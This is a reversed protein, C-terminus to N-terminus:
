GLHTGSRSVMIVLHVAGRLSEFMDDYQQIRDPDLLVEPSMALATPFKGQEEVTDEPRSDVLYFKLADCPRNGREGRNSEKSWCVIPLVETPAVSLTVYSEVGETEVADDKKGSTFAKTFKKRQNTLGTNMSSLLNKTNKAVPLPKMLPHFGTGYKRKLKTDLEGLKGEYKEMIKTINQEKEPCHKRYFSSLRLENAVRRAEDSRREREAEMAAKHAQAEAELKAQLKEEAIRHREQLAVTVARDECRRLKSVVSRPTSEWLARARNCWEQVWDTAESSTTEDESEIAFGELTTGEKFDMIRELEKKLEDGTALLLTDSNKELVSLALFFRLSNNSSTLILDWLSMLWMPNMNTGRSEGALHSILWSQPIVGQKELNRGKSTASDEAESNEGLRKPWQWGPAYRDLHFVLLPLHYSALQYFQTHLTKAAELREKHTLGLLPMMKPVISSLVVSAVAPPMGTSLITGVVPPFLSDMETNAEDEGRKAASEYHFVLVACLDSKADELTKGAADDVAVIREALITAEGKIWETREDKRSELDFDQRWKRFAEAMSSENVRELSKGCVFRCWLAPRDAADIKMGEDVFLDRIQDITSESSAVAEKLNLFTFKPPLQVITAATVPTTEKAAVEKSKSSPPEKEKPPETKEDDNGSEPKTDKTASTEEGATEIPRDDEDLWDLIEKTEADDIPVPGGELSDNKNSEDLLDLFSDTSGSRARSDDADEATAPKDEEDAAPPNEAPVDPATAGEVGFSFLEDMDDDEDWGEDAM